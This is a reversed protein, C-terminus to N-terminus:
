CLSRDSSAFCIASRRKDARGSNVILEQSFVCVIRSAARRSASTFARWEAPSGIPQIPAAQSAPPRRMQRMPRNRSVSSSSNRSPFDATLSSSLNTSWSILLDYLSIAEKSRSRASVTMANAPLVGRLRRPHMAFETSPCASALRCFLRSCVIM